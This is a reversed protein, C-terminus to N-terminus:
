KKTAPKSKSKPKAKPAEGSDQKGVERAARAIEHLQKYSDSILTERIKRDREDVSMNETGPLIYRLM